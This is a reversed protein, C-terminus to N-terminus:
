WQLLKLNFYKCVISPRPLGRLCNKLNFGVLDKKLGPMSEPRLKLYASKQLYNLNLSNDVKFFSFIFTLLYLDTPLYKIVSHVLTIYM